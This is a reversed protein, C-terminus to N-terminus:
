VLAASGRTFEVRRANTAFDAEDAYEDAQGCAKLGFASELDNISLRCTTKM